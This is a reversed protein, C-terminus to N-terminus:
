PRRIRTALFAALKARATAAAKADYGLAMGLVRKGGKFAPDDFGHPGGPPVTLMVRGPPQAAALAECDAAPTVEDARGVVILTPIRLEAGNQNACPPYFAAAARFAPGSPSASRGTAISLATDGGQSAGFVAVRSADIDPRAALWALAGYADAVGGPFDVSCTEKLGRTAFDDVSLAAYGSAALADETERRNSPLGLCTHLLVVAPFPGAGKPKAFYGQLATAGDAATFTVREAGHAFGGALTFAVLAAAFCFRRARLL